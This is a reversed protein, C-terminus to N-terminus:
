KCIKCYQSADELLSDAEDLSGEIIAENSNGIGSSGSSNLDLSEFMKIDNLSLSDAAGSVDLASMSDFMLTPVSADPSAPAEFLDVSAMM